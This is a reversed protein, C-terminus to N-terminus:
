IKSESEKLDVVIWYLRIQHHSVTNECGLNRLTCFEEKFWCHDEWHSRMLSFIIGRIKKVQRVKKLLRRFGRLIKGNGNCYGNNHVLCLQHTKPKADPLESPVSATPVYSSPWPSLQSPHM